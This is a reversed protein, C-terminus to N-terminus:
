EDTENNKLHALLLDAGKYEKSRLMKNAGVLAKKVKEVVSEIGTEILLLLLFCGKNCGIYSRLVMNPISNVLKESFEASSPNAKDWMILKKIAFSSAGREIIHQNNVDNDYVGEGSICKVLSTIAASKNDVAQTLINVLLLSTAGNFLMQKCHNEVLKLLHPFAFTKLEEYRTTSSKKSHPNNDGKALITVVDRHFFRPDRPSLIYEFVKSAHKDKVLDLVNENSVLEAVIVKELLKTDDVCDFAALLVLYGHEEQAIKAVFKKFSKVIVKRDKATGNWLCEMAVRSGPKTHLMEVVIEKLCDIVELKMSPTAHKFFEHFIFHAISHKWSNKNTLKILEEKMEELIKQKQSNNVKSFVQELTATKDDKFHAFEAGFYEQLLHNRQSSNAVENFAYEVVTAAENHHLMAKVNGYFAKIIETKQEKSGYNLMKQVFFKAYPLKCLDVLIDKVEEYIKTRNEDGGHAVICEIVRVTDHARIIQKVNGKIMKMLQNMYRERDAPACDERRVIEWIKKAETALEFNNNESKKRKEKLDKQKKRREKADVADNSVKKPKEVAGKKDKIVKKKMKIKSASKDSKKRVEKADTQENKIKKPKEVVDKKDNVVKRRKTSKINTESNVRKKRKNDSVQSM